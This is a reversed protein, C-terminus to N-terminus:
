RDEKGLKAKERLEVNRRCREDFRLDSIINNAIESMTSHGDFSYNSLIGGFTNNANYITNTIM